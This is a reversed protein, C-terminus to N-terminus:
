IDPSYKDIVLLYKYSMKIMFFVKKTSYVSQSKEGKYYQNNCANRNLKTMILEIISFFRTYRLAVDVVTRACQKRFDLGLRMM